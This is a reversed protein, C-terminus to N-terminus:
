VRNTGPTTGEVWRSEGGEVEQKWIPAETKIRDIASRAAVFAEPRHASSAAVIVSPEGLPVTGVRHEAAIALAGSEALVETLIEAIKAEAMESYAEYELREVERTVGAFTVVAGAEPRGVMGSLRDLSLPEGTVAAHVDAGGSVPPILAVEDGDRLQEGDLSYERNVAARVPMAGILDALEGLLDGVTSGEPLEVEISDRGARERLMAFLKVELKMTAAAMTM